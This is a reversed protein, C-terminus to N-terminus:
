KNEVANNYAHGRHKKYVHQMGQEILDNAYIKKGEKASLELALLQMERYLTKDLTTNINARM